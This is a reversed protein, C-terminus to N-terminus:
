ELKNALEFLDEQENTIYGRTTNLSYHGAQNAVQVISYGANYLANNCFYSRLLHPHLKGINCIEKYKDLLRNGFNRSLPEKTKKNKNGIFLYPNDTKIEKRIKLYDVLADYMENNIIVQRFKNGKGVVNLFRQELLVDALRIEIIESERLGGNVYVSIFCYDREPNKSDNASHHKLKNIDQLSPVEKKALTPQIKIYDKDIIAINDQIKEEVLFMNYQKLSAIKRNISKASVGNKYLFNAYMKVDAHILKELPEGYSDYYYDNFLKVDRAYSNYTNESLGKEKMYEIFKEEMM